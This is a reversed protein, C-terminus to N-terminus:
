KGALQTKVLPLGASVALRIVASATLGHSKAIKAAHATNADGLRISLQKAKKTNTNM